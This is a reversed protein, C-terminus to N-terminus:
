GVNDLAWRMLEDPPMADIAILADDVTRVIHAEGQWQRHWEVQEDTLKGKDGKVELLYNAKRFGVLLDVCGNGVPALSQVSAGVGRLAAVIEAQNADVKGRRRM